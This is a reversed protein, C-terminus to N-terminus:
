QQVPADPGVVGALSIRAFLNIRELARHLQPALASCLVVASVLGDRAAALLFDFRALTDNNLECVVIDVGDVQRLIAMAKDCHSAQYVARTGLAGLSAVKLKRSSLQADLVLVRLSMM